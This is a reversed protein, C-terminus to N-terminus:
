RESPPEPKISLLLQKSLHLFFEKLERLTIPKLMEPLDAEEYQEIVRLAQAFWFESLGLDKQKAQAFLHEFSYHPLIFYLDVFHRLDMMTFIACIKNSGINELSDVIIGEIEQRQGFQTQIDKVFDVRLTEGHAESHFIFRRFDGPPPSEVSVIRLSLQSVLHRVPESINEVLGPKTTFLDLDKSLRHQLYFAALATGGTLFFDCNTRFFTRLFDLQLPTLITKYSM